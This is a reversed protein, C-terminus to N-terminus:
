RAAVEVMVENRRLFPLTWPPDYFAFVPDGVPKLGAEAVDKLLEARKADMREAGALGSFKVVAMRRAPHEVLRVSPDAPKPLTALTYGAPMTFAVTWGNASAKQSVPATMAIKERPAQTVPATMAIKGGKRDKAFIYDALPMFGANRAKVADGSVTTEATVVSAYDRTEFGAERRVVKFAPEEVGVTACAGMSLFALSLALVRMIRNRNWISRAPLAIPDPSARPQEACHDCGKGFPCNANAADKSGPRSVSPMSAVSVPIPISSSGWRLRNWGKVWASAVRERFYSPDPRPRLMLRFSTSSTPPLIPM